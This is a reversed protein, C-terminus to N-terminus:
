PATDEQANQDIHCRASYLELLALGVYLAFRADLSMPAPRSQARHDTTCLLTHLVSWRACDAGAAGIRYAPLLSTEADMPRPPLRPVCDLHPRPGTWTANHM